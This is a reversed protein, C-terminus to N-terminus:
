KIDILEPNEYINGVVLMKNLCYMFLIDSDLESKLQFCGSDYFVKGRIKGNSFELIDGEYIEKGSKDKLGTYQMFGCEENLHKPSRCEDEYCHPNTGFVYSSTNFANHSWAIAGVNFMTEEEKDWARFKIERM